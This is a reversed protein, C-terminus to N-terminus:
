EGVRVVLKGFNRGQLLGIFAEPASELGEVVDERYRVKGEQVWASMERQFEPFLHGYESFVIFGQVRLRKRLITGLFLPIRDPGPPLGTDNYHAILGCVPIRAKPNLHPLVADFLAGGVNEWYIDVGEPCAEAVRASLDPQYHDLCADFGLEEVAYRCKEEGGAIGVVRCGKLKGLQGVVSGVAGTAAGVVLTEGPQPAGIDLLGGYATLGPMGLVGLAYSPRPLGPDLKLLGEGDSLAYDQWGSYAVVREGERFDPHRSEEVRSVTAGVMVDGLEMAPAYSPADSMRGRMYPDLSLYLTRLLLQGEEPRPVPQEELRFNAPTPLGRPREALVFRRNTTTSQPM